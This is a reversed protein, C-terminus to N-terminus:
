FQDASIVKGGNRTALAQYVGVQMGPAFIYAFTHPDRTVGV